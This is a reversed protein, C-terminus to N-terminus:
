DHGPAIEQAPEDHATRHPTFLVPVLWHPLAILQVAASQAIWHM